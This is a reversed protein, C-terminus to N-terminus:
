MLHQRRSLMKRVLLMLFTLNNHMLTVIIMVSDRLHLYWRKKKIKM